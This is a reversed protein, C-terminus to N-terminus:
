IKYTFCLGVRSLNPIRTGLLQGTTIIYSQVLLEIQLFQCPITIGSICGFTFPHNEFIIIHNAYHQLNSISPGLTIQVDKLIGTKFKFYYNLFWSESMWVIDTYRGTPSFMYYWERRLSLSSRSQNWNLEVGLQPRLSFTGRTIPYYEAWPNNLKLSITPHFKCNLNSDQAFMKTTQFFIALFIAILLKRRM